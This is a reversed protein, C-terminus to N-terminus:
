CWGESRAVTLMGLSYVTATVSRNGHTRMVPSRLLPDVDAWGSRRPGAHTAVQARDVAGRVPGARAVQHDTLAGHGSRPWRPSCALLRGNLVGPGTYAQRATGEVPRYRPTSVRLGATAAASDADSDPRPRAPRATFPREMAVGRSARCTSLM